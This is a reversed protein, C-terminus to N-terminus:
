EELSPSIPPFDLTTRALRNFANTFWSMGVHAVVEVLEADSVGARRLEELQEDPVAGRRELVARVFSLVLGTRADASEGRLNRALEDAEVGSAAGLMTHAAACYNCRNHGAVAVAIQERLRPPLAGRGLADVTRTYAELAVPAHALTRHLNPVMGLARRTRQLIERASPTTHEDHLAEIRPEADRQM